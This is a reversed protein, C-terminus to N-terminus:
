KIEGSRDLIRGALTKSPVLIRQWHQHDFFNSIHGHQRREYLEDSPQYLYASHQVVIDM